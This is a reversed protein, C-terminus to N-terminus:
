EQSKRFLCTQLHHADHHLIVGHDPTQLDHLRLSTPTPPPPGGITWATTHRVQSNPDKLASLFFPLGMNVLQVLKEPEPGELISGFAFTAAERCRWDEPTNKRDINAQLLAATLFCALRSQKAASRKCFKPLFRFISGQGGFKGM